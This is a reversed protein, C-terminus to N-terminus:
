YVCRSIYTKVIPFDASCILFDAKYASKGLIDSARNHRNKEILNLVCSHRSEFCRGKPGNM